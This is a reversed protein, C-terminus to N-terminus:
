GGAPCTSPPMPHPCCPPTAHHPHLPLDASLRACVWGWIRRLRGVLWGAVPRGTLGHGAGGVEPGNAVDFSIDFSYGTDADEFKVIPM